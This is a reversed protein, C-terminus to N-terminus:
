EIVTNAQLLVTNPIRIGLSKATKINVVLEFITPREIPMEGPKAGRAIKDVLSAMRGFFLKLDPGYSMLGGAEPSQRFISISPVKHQNTLKAIRASIQFITPSPLQILAQPKKTFASALLPELAGSQKLELVDLSISLRNAAAKLADLQFRGISTDWLVAARRIGPITEALLELLKGMLGDFEVFLGTVNGGPRALSSVLGSAVPDTQTDTAVIPITSSATKAANTAATGVTVLIDVKLDVLVSALGPLLEPRGEAYRYEIRVNRGEEYGISKLGERLAVVAISPLAPPALGPHLVGLRIQKRASQAFAAPSAFLGGIVASLLQRRPNMRTLRKTIHFGSWLMSDICRSAKQRQLTECRTDTRHAAEPIEDIESRRSTRWPM